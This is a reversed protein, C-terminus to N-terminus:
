VSPVKRGLVLATERCDSDVVNTETQANVWENVENLGAWRAIQFGNLEPTKSWLKRGSYEETM